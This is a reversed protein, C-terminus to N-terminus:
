SRGPARRARRILRLQGIEAANKTLEVNVWAVTDAVTRDSGPPWPFPAPVDLDADALVATWEDHMGRLWAVTGDASGPWGIEARERPARGALHDLTVSWWWGLHWSVWAVTPVPIPDPEADSWDPVWGGAGDPRVTWCLDAPEWLLDDPVLQDLHYDLLAWCLDFQDRLLDRRSM